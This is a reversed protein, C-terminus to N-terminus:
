LVVFGKEILRAARPRDITIIEGQVTRRGEETDFPRVVKVSVMGEGEGLAKYSSSGDALIESWNDPLMEYEFPPLRKQIEKVPIRGMDFPLIFGNVGDKVGIEEFVPCPTVIVPVGMSLAEVVSLCYGESDSLQVLYDAAKIEPLIDIKPRWLRVNPNSFPRQDNTFIDWTYSVGARDLTKMLRLMRDRGKEATLRTASILRLSKQVGKTNVPIYAVECKRGSVEEFSRRALDSVALFRSIKPHINPIMRMAKYDCHIIQIYEEAEVNDIIDTSYNFFAKECKIKTGERHKVVPLFRKLRDIQETSGSTYYITIDRDFYSKGLYYFFSEVGGIMNIHKFYFINKMTIGELSFFVLSKGSTRGKSISLFSYMTHNPQYTGHRSM